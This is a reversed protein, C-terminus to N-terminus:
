AHAAVLDQPWNVIRLIDHNVELEVALQYSAKSAAIRTTHPRTPVIM